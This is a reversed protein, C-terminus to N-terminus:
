TQRNPADPMKDFKVQCRGAKKWDSIAEENKSKYVVGNNVISQELQKTALQRIKTQSTKRALRRVQLSFVHLRKLLM